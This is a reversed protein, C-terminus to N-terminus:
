AADGHASDCEDCQDYLAGKLNGCECWNTLAAEGEDEWGTTGERPHEWDAAGEDGDWCYFRTM